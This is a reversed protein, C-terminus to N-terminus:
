EYTFIEEIPVGFFRAIKFALELSPDYKGKEIALITQRTVKLEQALAEQTLDRMARYVKIKNKM